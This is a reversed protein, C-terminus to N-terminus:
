FMSWEPCGTEGILKKALAAEKLDKTYSSPFKKGLGNHFQHYVEARFFPFKNSDIVWVTNLEDGETAVGLPGQYENGSGEKLDMHNVNEEQLIKFLESRVGGPIGITNRYGAGMDQPDQRQMKGSRLKNFEAFYTKAYARFQDEKTMQTGNDRLEVQVVEAHGLKEYITDLENTYYYCVKGSPSTKRGGAYGVVASIDKATRGMSEETKIMDYQRGWYCGNGFYVPEVAESASVSLALSALTATVAAMKLAKFAGQDTDKVAVHKRWATATVPSPAPRHQVTGRMKM